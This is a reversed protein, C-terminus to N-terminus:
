FIGSNKAFAMKESDPGLPEYIYNPNLAYRTRKEQDSCREREELIEKRAQQYRKFMEVTYIHTIELYHASTRNNLFSPPFMMRYRAFWFEAKDSHNMHIADRPREFGIRSVIQFSVYLYIFLGSYNLPGNQVGTFLRSGVNRAHSMQQLSHM